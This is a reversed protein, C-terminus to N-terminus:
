GYRVELPELLLLEPQLETSYYAWPLAPCSATLGAHHKAKHDEGCGNQLQHLVLEAQHKTFTSPIGHRSSRDCRVIHLM